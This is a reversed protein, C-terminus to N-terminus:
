LGLRKFLDESCKPVHDEIDEPDDKMLHSCYPCIAIDFWQDPDETMRGGERLSAYRCWLLM